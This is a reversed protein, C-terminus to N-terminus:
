DATLTVEAKWGLLLVALAATLRDLPRIEAPATTISLKEKCSAGAADVSRDRGM